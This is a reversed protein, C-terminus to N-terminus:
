AVANAICDMYYRWVKGNRVEMVTVPRWAHPWLRAPMRIGIGATVILERGEFTRFLSERSASTHPYSLFDYHLSLKILDYLIGNPTLKVEFISGDM